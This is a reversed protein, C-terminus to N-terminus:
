PSDGDGVEGEATLKRKLIEVAISRYDDVTMETLVEGGIEEVISVQEDTIRTVSKATARGFHTSFRRELLWQASKVDGMDASIAVQRLCRVCFDAEAKHLDKILDKKSEDAKWTEYEELTFGGSKLAVDIPAGSSLSLKVQDLGVPLPRGVPLSGGQDIDEGFLPLTGQKM